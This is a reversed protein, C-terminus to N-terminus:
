GCLQYSWYDYSYHDAALYFVQEQSQAPPWQSTTKWQGGHSLKGDNWNGTGGGMLFYHVKSRKNDSIGLVEDFWDLRFDLYM